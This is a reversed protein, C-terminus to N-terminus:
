TANCELNPWLLSCSFSMAVLAFFCLVMVFVPTEKSFSMHTTFWSLVTQVLLLHGSAPIHSKFPHFANWTISSERHSLEVTETAKVIQPESFPLFFLMKKSKKSKRAANPVMEIFSDIDHRSLKDAAVNDLRYIHRARLNVNYKLCTMRLVQILYFM